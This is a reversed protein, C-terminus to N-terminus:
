SVEVEKELDPDDDADDLDPDPMFIVTERAKQEAEKSAVPSSMLVKAATLRVGWAIKGTSTVASLASVLVSEASPTEEVLEERHRRVLTRFDERKLLRQIRKTSCDFEEAVEKQQRGTSLALAIRRQEATLPTPQEAV